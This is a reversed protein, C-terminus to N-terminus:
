SITLRDEVGQVGPASWAAYEAAQRERWDHVYGDLTVHGGDRVNVNIRQAEVGAHRKLADEIRRKVDDAHVQPKVAISNVVGVVGSLKRVANEAAARQYHWDVKGSLAVWGDQVKIQISDKPVVANWHLINIARQAIEADSTKKDEAYRVKIEEAIATVGKVRRIAQEVALKEAYSGVMGSLMVVGNDVAVGIHIANVSPEFDLEDLISQRLFMDSM